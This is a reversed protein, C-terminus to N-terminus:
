SRASPGSRPPAVASPRLASVSSMPTLAYRPADIGFRSPDHLPEITNRRAKRRWSRHQEDPFAYRTRYHGDRSYNTVVMWMDAVSKHIMFTGVGWQTANLKYM